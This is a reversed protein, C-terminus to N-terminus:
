LMVAVAFVVVLGVISAGIAGTPRIASGTTTARAPSVSSGGLTTGSSTSSGTTATATSTSSTLTGSASAGSTATSSPTSTAAAARSSATAAASSAKTKADGSESTAKAEASEVAGAVTALGGFGSYTHLYSKVDTPLANFWSPSSGAAFASEFSRAYSADHVVRSLFSQPAATELAELM